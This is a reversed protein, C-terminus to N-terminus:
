NKKDKINNNKQEKSNESDDAYTITKGIDGVGAHYVGKDWYGYYNDTCVDYAIIIRNKMITINKNNIYIYYIIYYIINIKYIRTNQVIKTINNIM